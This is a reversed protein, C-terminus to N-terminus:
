LFFQSLNLLICEEVEKNEALNHRAANITRCPKVSVDTEMLATHNWAVRWPTDDKYSTDGLTSSKTQLSIKKSEDLSSEYQTM